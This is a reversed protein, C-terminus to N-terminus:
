SLMKGAPQPIKCLPLHEFQISDTNIGLYSYFFFSTLCYVVIIDSGIDSGGTHLAASTAPTIYSYQTTRWPFTKRLNVM